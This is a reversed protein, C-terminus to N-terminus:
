FALNTKAEPLMRACSFIHVYLLLIKKTKRWSNCLFKVKPTQPCKAPIQPNGAPTPHKQAPKKPPHNKNFNQRRGRHPERRAPFYQWPKRGQTSVVGGPRLHQRKIAAKSLSHRRLNRNSGFRSAKKGVIRSAKRGKGAREGPRCVSPNKRKPAHAPWTNLSSM